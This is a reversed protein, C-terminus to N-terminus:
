NIKITIVATKSGKKYYKSGKATVKVKIKYTGKKLGKKVTILGTKKNVTINKDGSKKAYSKKGKAKTIKAAKTIKIKQDGKKLDSLKVSVTKGKVKMPQKAKTVTVEGAAEYGMEDTARVTTTGIGAPTLNGGADVKVIEPDDSTFTFDSPDQLNWEDDMVDFTTREFYDMRIEDYASWKGYKTVEVRAARTGIGPISVKVYAVGPKIAEVDCVSTNSESPAISVYEEGGEELEWTIESTDPFTDQTGSLRVRLTDSPSGGYPELLVNDSSLKMTLSADKNEDLYGKIPFNDFTLIVYFEGFMEELFGEDTLDYWSGGVKVYSEKPNVVGKVWSYQGAFRSMEEGYAMQLNVNYDGEPTVETIVISYSQGKMISVPEELTIKHFGGYKYPGAEGSTMMVGDTPSKFGSTLLYVSYYVTTGPAATHCSIQRLTENMDAKFVNSMASETGLDASQVDEAPMNDYEDIYYQKRENSSQFDLAEPLGLSKDYYSLWFYGTHIDSTEEYPAKDQGQLLGWNGGGNNPFKEEGSGWSNKVLWAGDEPPNYGEVFNEKPYDDDWGIITVAHNAVEEEDYTYHAWNSSIYIGDSEQNPMSNDAHFGIEVARKAMLQEKIALTGLPNYEYHAEAFEDESDDLVQAAPSPLMFSEKLVYSQTYRLEEPISWDDDPDYDYDIWTGDGTQYKEIEKNLGHYGYIDAPTGEPATDPLSRDERNPGMGSAFLTTAYFPLGGANFKDEFTKFYDEDFYMGEGYQPDNKDAIPRVHFNILHKESLDLTKWNYGDDEALGSGLISTEAAAIAAFGWCSGFPNQFRVPTVYREGDVNRLDYKAPMDENLKLASASKESRFDFADKNMDQMQRSLEEMASGDDSPETGAAATLPAFLGTVLALSMLLALIKSTKRNM